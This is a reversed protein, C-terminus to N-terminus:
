YDTCLKNINLLTNTLYLHVVKWNMFSNWSMKWLQWHGPSSSHWGIWWDKCNKFGLICKDIYLLNKFNGCIYEVMKNVEKSRRTIKYISLPYNELFVKPKDSYQRIKCWQSWCFESPIHHICPWFMAWLSFSFIIM